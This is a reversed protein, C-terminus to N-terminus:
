LFSRRNYPDNSVQHSVAQLGLSTERKGIVNIKDFAGMPFLVM